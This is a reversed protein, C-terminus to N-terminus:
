DGLLVLLSQQRNVLCDLGGLLVTLDALPAALHRGIQLRGQTVAVDVARIILVVRAAEEEVSGALVSRLHNVAM